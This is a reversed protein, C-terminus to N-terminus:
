PFLVKLSGGDHDSKRFVVGFKVNLLFLASGDNLFVVRLFIDILSVCVCPIYFM